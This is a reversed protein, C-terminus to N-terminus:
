AFGCKGLFRRFCGSKFVDSSSHVVLVALRGDLLSFTEADENRASSVKFNLCYKEDKLSLTASLFDYDTPLEEALGKAILEPANLLAVL